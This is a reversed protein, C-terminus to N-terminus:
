LRSLPLYQKWFATTVETTRKVHAIPDDDQCIGHKAGEITMFAKPDHAAEYTALSRELRDNKTDGEGHVLLLPVARPSDTAFRPDFLAGAIAM